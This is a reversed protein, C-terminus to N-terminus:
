RPADGPRHSGGSGASRGHVAAPDADWRRVCGRIGRGATAASRGPARSRRHPRRLGPRRRGYPRHFLDLRSADNHGGYDIESFAALDTRLLATRRQPGLEGKSPDGFVSFDFRNLDSLQYTFKGSYAVANRQREIEGLDRLPFGEPAILDTANWQRDFAGFFFMRDKWIPGGLEVGVDSFFTATTNVAEAGRTANPLVVQKYDAEFAEPQWYTFGSGRFANAGSKTVAQVV